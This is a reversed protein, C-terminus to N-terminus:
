AVPAANKRRLKKRAVMALGGLMLAMTTPEPVNAHAIFKLDGPWADCDGHACGFTISFNKGAGIGTHYCDLGSLLITTIGNAATSVACNAFADTVCTIANAPVGIETLKLNFWDM